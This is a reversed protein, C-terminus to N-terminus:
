KALGHILRIQDKLIDDFQISDITSKSIGQGLKEIEGDGLDGALIPVIYSKCNWHLPPTFRFRDPDNAAFITGDLETCIETVPDGNLFQLADLQEQVAPDDFFTDRSTSVTTSATLVSGADLSTGDLFENVADQLDAELQDMSDTSDYNHFYGFNVADVISQIQADTLLDANLKLKRQLEAPLSEFDALKVNKAKPIEKRVQNIADHALLSVADLINSKYENVGKPKVKKIVKHMESPNSRRAKAMVQSILDQAIPKLGDYMLQHLAKAGEKIQKRANTKM